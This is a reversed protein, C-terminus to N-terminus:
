DNMDYVKDLDEGVIVNILSDASDDATFIEEVLVKLDGVKKEIDLSVIETEDGVKVIVSDDGIKVIQAGNVVDGEKAFADDVTKLTLVDKSVNTIEVAQGFLNIKLPNDTSIVADTTADYEIVYQISGEDFMLTPTAERDLETVIKLSEQVRIDEGDVEVDYDALKEFQNDTMFRTNFTADLSKELEYGTFEVVVAAEVADQEAIEEQLGVLEAKYQAIVEKDVDSMETLDVVQVGLAAIQTEYNDLTITNDALALDLTNVSEALVGLDESLAKNDKNAGHLAVGSVLGVAVGAIAVGYAVKKAVSKNEEKKVM